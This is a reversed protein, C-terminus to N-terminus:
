FVVSLGVTYTSFLPYNNVGASRVEPDLEKINSITCINSGRAFVKVTKAMSTLPKNYGFTYSLEVNKLRFFGTNAIWYTSNTFNNSNDSGNTTLRPYTGEPNNVPHYRDLAVVSWKNEGYNWYYENTLVEKIGLSTVGLVKAGFGKWSLDFNLGAHFRPFSNGIPQRDNEDIIGDKNLDEYAIDGITYYGLTQLLAGELPVEKGFFGKSVYGMTVDTPQGVNRRNAVPHEVENTALLKNKSYLGCLGVSYLFDGAKNLYTFGFEVGQNRVKELNKKGFLNGYIQSYYSGADTIIDSRLEYFYNAEVWLKRNVLLGEFGLNLETAKEWKLDHSAWNVLTVTAQNGGQVVQYDGGQRWRNYHLNWDTSRDYGLLGGSAKVKLYDIGKIEKLFGEESVIWGLGGAYSLFYRNDDPFVDSGMLALDVEAMYKDKLSYNARLATNANQLNPSDGTVEAMMYHYFLNASIRHISSFTREFDLGFLYSNTRLNYSTGLTKQTTPNTRSLQQIMITDKGRAPDYYWRTAYTAASSSLQEVGYFSNDFSLQGKMSLGKVIPSLNFTIGLNLQGNVSNDRYYGGFMLAGYLNNDRTYSAGLGPYGLTDIPIYAPDIILPFENPRTDRIREFTGAHNLSGRKNIDFVGAIGIFTKVFENIKMDLNGRVNFWDRTPEEGIKQLGTNGNYGAIFAYQMNENGGSFEISAKRYATNKKLFFDIYDVDPYRLDNPGTSNRYGELDASTYIPELGDNLRAENYLVAYQHANLYKPYAVPLGVGMEATLNIKRTHMKGHKTTVSLIGNAARSGYLIKATADKIVHVSEIEELLTMNIDREMGDVLTIPANSGNRSQGRIFLNATNNGL